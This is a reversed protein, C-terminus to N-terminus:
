TGLVLPGPQVPRAEIRYAAAVARRAAEARGPENFALHALPEGAEVRDGLKRDLVVGVAPDIVDGVKERGA